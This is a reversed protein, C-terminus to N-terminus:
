FNIDGDIAAIGARACEEDKSVEPAGSIAIGGVLIGGAQIPVGGGLVLAGPVDRLGYGSKNPQALKAVELTPTRFSTATWAKKRSTEPTHAGAFQDRLIVQTVGMRDVVAVSVQYGQKRCHNQAAKAAKLATEQSMVKLTVLAEAKASPIMPPTMLAIAMGLMMLGTKQM